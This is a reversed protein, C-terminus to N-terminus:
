NEVSAYFITRRDTGLSLFLNFFVLSLFDHNFLVELDKKLSGANLENKLHLKKKKKLSVVLLIDTTLAVFCFIDFYQPM